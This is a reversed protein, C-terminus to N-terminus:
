MMLAAATVEHGLPKIAGVGAALQVHLRQRRQAMEIEIQRAGVAVLLRNLRDVLEIDAGVRDFLLESARHEIDENAVLVVM